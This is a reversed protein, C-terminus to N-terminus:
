IITVSLLESTYDYRSAGAIVVDPEEGGVQRREFMQAQPSATAQGFLLAAASALMFSTMTSTTLRITSWLLKFEQATTIMLKCRLDMKKYLSALKNEAGTAELL